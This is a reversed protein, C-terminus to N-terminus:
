TIFQEVFKLYGQQGGRKNWKQVSKRIRKLCAVIEEVTLPPPQPAGGKDGNRVLEVRGLRWDCMSKVAEYLEQRLENLTPPDFQRGSQEAQYLRILAALVTEVDYDVLNARRHYVKIIAFEINQLVDQYEEEFTM